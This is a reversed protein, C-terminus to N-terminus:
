CGLETSIKTIDTQLRAAQDATLKPKKGVASEAIKGSLDSLQRCAQDVHGGAV